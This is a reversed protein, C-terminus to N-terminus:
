EWGQMFHQMIDGIKKFPDRTKGMRNNEEIEKCQENSFGKKNGKSKEPLRCENSYIKGKRGAKKKKKGEKM